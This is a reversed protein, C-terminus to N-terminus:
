PVSVAAGHRYEKYARLQDGYGRKSWFLTHDDDTAGAGEPLCFDDEDLDVEIQELRAEAEARLAEIETGLEETARKFQSVLEDYEAALEDRRAQLNIPQDPGVTVGCHDGCLAEGAEEALHTELNKKQRRADNRIDHDYYQLIWGEVISHLEGPHLAEMADLEVAGSGMRGEFSAARSESAKIPMRPLAYSQVQGATLVLPELRVDYDLDMSDLWFEIKRAVSVSMGHGAPDFDAIYAIRVPRDAEGARSLLAMVATISMEGAGTVLNAGYQRCLPLLVDNMTTKEAWIELHYPQLNGDEYGDVRFGPLDPFDPPEIDIGAWGMAPSFGPEVDGWYDAHKSPKPNRRDVFGDADIYDLYRAVKSAELLYGWDKSTNGYQDGNPRRYAPSQSVLLYHVRRLHTGPGFGFESWIGAFWQAKEHDGDTGVYYPDNKPALAILDKVRCGLEKAQRKLRQHTSLGENSDM